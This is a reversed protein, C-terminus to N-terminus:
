FSHVFNLRQKSSSSVPGDSAYSVRERGHREGAEERAPEHRDGQGHGDLTRGAFCAAELRSFSANDILIQILIQIKSHPQFPFITLLLFFLLEIIRRSTLIRASTQDLKRSHQSVHNKLTRSRRSWFPTLHHPPQVKIALKEGGSVGM